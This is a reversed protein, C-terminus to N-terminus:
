FLWAWQRNVKGRRLRFTVPDSAVGADYITRTRAPIDLIAFADRSETLSAIIQRKRFAFVGDSELLVVNLPHHLTALVDIGGELLWRPTCLLAQDPRESWKRVRQDLGSGLTMAVMGEWAKIWRRGEELLLWGGTVVVAEHQELCAAVWHAAASLLEDHENRKNTTALHM